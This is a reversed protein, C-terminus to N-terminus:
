QRLLGLISDSVREGRVDPHSSLFRLGICRM